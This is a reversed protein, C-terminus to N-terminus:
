ARLKQAMARCMWCPENIPNPNLKRMEDQSDFTKLAMTLTTVGISRLHKLEKPTIKKQWRGKRKTGM